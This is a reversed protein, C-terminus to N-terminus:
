GKDLIDRILQPLPLNAEDLIEKITNAQELIFIESKKDTENELFILMNLFWEKVKIINKIDNDSIIIDEISKPHTIRNRISISKKFIEWEKVGKDISYDINYVYSYWKISFLINYELKIFRQDSFVKGDKDVKLDKEKLIYMEDSPIKENMAGDFEVTFNKMLYIVGEIWSFLARIFSRYLFQTETFSLKTNKSNIQKLCHDVDYKLLNMVAFLQKNAEEIRKYIEPTEM